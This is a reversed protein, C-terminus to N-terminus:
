GFPHRSMSSIMVATAPLYVKIFLNRGGKEIGMFAVDRSRVAALSALRLAEVCAKLAGAAFQM